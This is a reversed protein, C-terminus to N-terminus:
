TYGPILKSVELFHILKKLGRPYWKTFQYKVM